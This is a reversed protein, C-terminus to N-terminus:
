SGVFEGRVVIVLFVQIDKLPRQVARQAPEAMGSDFGEAVFGDVAAAQM